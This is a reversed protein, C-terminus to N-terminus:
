VATASLGETERLCFGRFEEVFETESFDNWVFRLERKIRPGALPLRVLRGTELGEVAALRSIVAIGVNAEVLSIIANNSGIEMVPHLLEVDYGKAALYREFVERTGSGPERLIIEQGLLTKLSIPRKAGGPALPHRPSSVAILEDTRFRVLQLGEEEFPGEVIGLTLRNRRLLEVTRATNQVSLRIKVGVNRSLYRGILSPMLYEAVTLTAGVEYSKPLLNLNAMERDISRYLSELRQAREYLVSGADTPITRRGSRTFLKVGYTEELSSVHQSVAPQTIHLVEAAASFSGRRVVELFSKLRFDNM